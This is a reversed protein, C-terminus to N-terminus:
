CLSMGAFASVIRRQEWTISAAFEFALQLWYAGVQCLRLCSQAGADATLVGLYRPFGSRGVIQLFIAAQLALPPSQQSERKPTRVIRQLPPFIGQASRCSLKWVAMAGLM